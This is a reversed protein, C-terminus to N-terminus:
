ENVVSYKLMLTKRLRWCQLRGNEVDMKLLGINARKKTDMVNVKVSDGPLQDDRFTVTPKALGHALRGGLEQM